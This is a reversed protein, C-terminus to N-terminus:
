FLNINKIVEDHEQAHNQQISYNLVALKACNKITEIMAEDTDMPFGVSLVDRMTPTMEMIIKKIIYEVAERMNDETVYNDSSPNVNYIQWDTLKKEVLYELLERSEKVSYNHKLISKDLEM